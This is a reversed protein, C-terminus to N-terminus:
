TRTRPDLSARLALAAAHFPTSRAGSALECAEDLLPIAAEGAGRALMLEAKDIVSRLGLLHAGTHNALAISRDCLQEALARDGRALAVRAALRELEPRYFVDLHVDALGRARELVEHAEDVRELGLCAEVLHTMWYSLPLKQAILDFFGVGQRMPELVAEDVHEGTRALKVLSWGRGLQANSMWFPYAASVAIAREAWHLTAEADGLERMVLMTLVFVMAQALTDDFREALEACRELLARAREAEGTLAHIWALYVMGFLGHDDGFVRILEVHEDPQYRELVREFAAKAADFKATYLLTTGHAFHASIEALRDPNRQVYELVQLSYEETVGRLSRALNFVWLGYLAPLLEPPDGFERCLERARASHDHVPQAAYGMTAVCSATILIRLRLERGRTTPTSEVRPILELAHGLHALAEVHESRAVCRRGAEELFELARELLEAREFHLALLEPRAAAREPLESLLAEAIMRHVRVLSDRTMSDYAADRILAHRFLYTPHDIRPRRVILGASILQDLDGLLTGRDRDSVAALLGFEFERGIAAAIHATERALGLADLRSMLLDRLSAPVAEREGLKGRGVFLRTLEEAFLPIGDAREVIEGILERPLERAIPLRGVLTAVQDRSLPELQVSVLEGLAAEFEPRATMLVFRKAALAPLLKALWQLSTPDAWHLDEIFLYANRSDLLAVLYDVLLQELMARQKLPSYPLRETTSALPLALGERLLVLAHDLPLELARLQDLFADRDALEREFLELLPAFALGRSEPMFRLELKGQGAREIRENLEHALRSKGMGAEARLLAGQRAEFAALLQELERERGVFRAVNAAYLASGSEGVLRATPIGGAGRWATVIAHSGEDSFEAHREVLERFNESVHIVSEQLNPTLLALEFAFSAVTGHQIPREISAGDVTLLGTHIGAHLHAEMRRQALLAINRRQIRAGLELTARAALRADADSAVPVGFYFTAAGAMSGLETGGFEHMTARCLALLDERYVDLLDTEVPDGRRRLLIRCAVASVQRRQGEVARRVAVAATLTADIGLEAPAKTSDVFFGNDDVLEGLELSELRALLDEASGARRQPNKQLVWRLLSGLESAELKDPLPIPSPMLQQALVEGLSSGRIASQGTICEFFVLGWAYLDTKSTPSEGRVQEPAAYAPTGVMENTLTLRTPDSQEAVPMTGIGYDLVKIRERAGEGVIMLNSPKLDRHIVGEGHAYALAVLLQAMLRRARELQLAGEADLVGRLTRGPVFEFVSFSTGETVEGFDILRVIDPHHLRACIEMERKFRTRQRSLGLGDLGASLRQVKVAVDQGTNRQLARFVTGGGGAGIQERLEYKGGLVRGIRFDDASLQPESDTM